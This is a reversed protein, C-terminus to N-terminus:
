GLEFGRIGFYLTRWLTTANVLAGTTTNIPCNSPPPSGSWALWVENNAITFPVSAGSIAGGPTKAIAVDSDTFYPGTGSPGFNGLAYNYNFQNNYITNRYSWQSFAGAFGQFDMFLPGGILFNYCAELNGSTQNNNQCGFMFPAAGGGGLLNVTNYAATINRNSDKFFVGFGATGSINNFEFVVDSISFMSTMLMSNNASGSRGTETCGIIAYYHRISPSGSNSTFISTSNTNGSPSTRNIPNQFDVDWWTCRQANYLEFTHTELATAASGVIALRSTLSGAFYLDTCGPGNDIIQSVSADITVTAGPLAMYVIPVKSQDITYYGAGGGEGVSGTQAPWQFSGNLYIRARPFTTQTFNTGMVKTLTAYPLAFTGTGTSDNGTSSNVFIFDTTSSSTAVTWTLDVTVLDQGTARITVTTPTSTSIAGTPTWTVVGYNTSGGISPHAAGVSMGPPGAIVSWVLPRAGGQVAVPVQYQISNTGDYYALRHRAVTTGFAGTESDPRPFVVGMAMKAAVWHGAPLFGAGGGGGQNGLPATPSRLLLINGM